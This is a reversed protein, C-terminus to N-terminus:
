VRVTPAGTPGTVAQLAAVYRRVGEELPTPHLAFGEARLKAM